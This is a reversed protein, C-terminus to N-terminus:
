QERLEEKGSQPSLRLQSKVVSDTAPSFSLRSVAAARPMACAVHASKMNLTFWDGVLNTFCPSKLVRSQM